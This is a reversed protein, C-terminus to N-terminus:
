AARWTPIEEGKVLRIEIIYPGIQCSDVIKARPYNEAKSQQILLIARMTPADFGSSPSLLRKRLATPSMGLRNAAWSLGGRGFGTYLAIVANRLNEADRDHEIM